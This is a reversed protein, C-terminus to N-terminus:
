GRDEASNVRDRTSYVTIEGHEGYSVSLGRGDKGDGYAGPFIRLIVQGNPYARGTVSLAKESSGNARQYIDLDFGGDKSRPGGDLMTSRGDIDASLWFNRVNRM